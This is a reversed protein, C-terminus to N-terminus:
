ATLTLPSKFRTWAREFAENAQEVDARCHPPELFFTRAGASLAKQLRHAATRTDGVLYPSRAQRNEFPGLWLGESDSTNSDALGRLRESWAM